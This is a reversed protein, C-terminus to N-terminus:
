VRVRSIVITPAKLNSLKFVLMDSLTAISLFSQSYVLYSQVRLNEPYRKQKLDFFLTEKCLVM